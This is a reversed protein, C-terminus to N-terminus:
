MNISLPELHEDRLFNRCIQSLFILSKQQLLHIRTESAQFFANFTNFFNLIYKLFLFYAKTEVNSMISLLNEGSMTKESVVM